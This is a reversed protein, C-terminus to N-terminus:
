MLISYCLLGSDRTHKKKREKRDFGTSLGMYQLYVGVSEWVCAHVLMCVLAPVCVCMEETTRMTSCLQLLVNWLSVGWLQVKALRCNICVACCITFSCSPAQSNLTTVQVPKVEKLCCNLCQTLFGKHSHKRSKNEHQSSTKITKMKAMVRNFYVSRLVGRDNRWQMATMISIGWQKFCPQQKWTSPQLGPPVPLFLWVYGAPFEM